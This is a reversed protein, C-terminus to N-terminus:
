KGEAAIGIRFFGRNGNGPITASTIPEVGPIGSAKLTWNPATLDESFWVAYTKGAVAQWELVHQNEVRSLSTIRFASAPNNPDTGAQYEEWNKRGDSDHDGLDATEFDGEVVLGHQYLWLNPTGQSTTFDEPYSGGEWRLNSFAPGAGAWDAQAGDVLRGASLRLQNVKDWSTLPENLGNTFDSVQLSVAHGGAANLAVIAHYETSPTSNWQVAQLTVGLSNGAATTAVDFSLRSNANGKWTPDNLKRTWFEFLTPHGANLIFWDHYGRSFDDIKRLKTETARVAHNALEPPYVTKVESAVSFLRTPSTFGAPMALDFGCDYTVLAFAVLPENTDNVPCRAQWLGPSTEAAVADRWFRTLPDRDYGYYIDVSLISHATSADPWVSFLPIGNNQNLDLKAVSTPPFDFSGTLNAKQWLVRAAYAASDFRHNFHPAVALRHTVAPNQLAMAKTVLDFPANFDNSAELFLTPCTIDPWYSQPDATREYWDLHASNMTRATRPLGWWDQYLYGSGGVSPTVCTVRPDTATLVTTQGGM